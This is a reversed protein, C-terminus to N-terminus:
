KAPVVVSSPVANAQSPKSACAGLFLAALALALAKILKMTHYQQYTQTKNCWVPFGFQLILPPSKQAM